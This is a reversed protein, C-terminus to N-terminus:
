GFQTWCVDAIDTVKSLAEGAPSLVEMGGVEWYEGDEMEDYRDGSEADYYCLWLGLESDGVKTKAKFAANVAELAVNLKPDELGEMSIAQAYGALGAFVEDDEKKSDTYALVAAELAAVEAPIVKKLEATSIVWGHTPAYGMGM